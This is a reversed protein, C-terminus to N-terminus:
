PLDIKKGVIFKALVFGFHRSDRSQSRHDGLVLYSGNPVVGRRPIGSRASHSVKSDAQIMKEPIILLGPYQHPNYVTQLGRPLYPENLVRGNIHVKGDKFEYEEGPLAVLRKIYLDGRQRALGPIDIAVIQGRLLSDSFLPVSLRDLLIWDGKALTPTMSEGRIRVPFVIFWFVFSGSIFVLILPRLLDVILSLVDAGPLSGRDRSGPNVDLLFLGSVFLGGFLGMLVCFIEHFQSGPLDEGGRIMEVQDLLTMQGFSGCIRSIVLGGAISLFLVPITRRYSFPKVALTAGSFRTLSPLM